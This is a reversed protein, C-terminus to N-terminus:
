PRVARVHGSQTTYYTREVGCQDGTEWSAPHRKGKDDRIWYSGELVITVDGNKKLDFTSFLDYLEWKTPLRWDHYVGQNLQNLYHEVEALSRMKKSREMQWVLGSNTEQFLGEQTRSLVPEGAFACSLASLWLILGLFPLLGYKHRQRPSCHNKRM